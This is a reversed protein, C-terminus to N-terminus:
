ILSSHRPPRDIGEPVNGALCPTFSSFNAFHSTRLLVRNATVLGAKEHTHDAHHHDNAAGNEDVVDLGDDDHSHDGHSHSHSHISNSAEVSATHLNLPHTGPAAFTFLLIGIVAMFAAFLNAIQHKQRLPM